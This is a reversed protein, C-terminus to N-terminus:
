YTETIRPIPKSLGAKIEAGELENILDLRDRYKFTRGNYTAESTTNECLKKYCDRLYDVVQAWYERPDQNSELNAQIQITGEEITSTFSDEKRVTKIQYLYLGAPINTTTPPINFTFDSNDPDAILIVPQNTKYKLIVKCTYDASSYGNFSEKWNWSDGSMINLSAFNSGM